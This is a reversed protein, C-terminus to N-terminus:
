NEICMSTFDDGTEYLLRIININHISRIIQDWIWIDFGTIVFKHCITDMEIFLAIDIGMSAEM